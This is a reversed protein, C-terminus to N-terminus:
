QELIQPLSEFIYLYFDTLAQESGETDIIAEALREAVPDDIAQISNLWQTALKFENVFEGKLAPVFLSSIVEAFTKAKEITDENIQLQSQSTSLEAQLSEIELKASDLEALVSELESKMTNFENQSSQFESKMSELETKVSDLNSKAADFESQVSQLNAALSDKEAVIADLEVMAADYVEQSIGCGVLLWPLLLFIMGVLIWRRAM